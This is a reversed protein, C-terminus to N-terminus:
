RSGGLQASALQAGAAALEQELLQTLAAADLGDLGDEVAQPAMPMLEAFVSSGLHQALALATPHEFVLTASLRSACAGALANRLEISMLSDLGLERLPAKPPPLEGAPRGLIRAVIRRVEDLLLRSREAAPAAALRARLGQGADGAAAGAAVSRITRPAVEAFLPPVAGAALRDLFRGWDIDLVGLAPEASMMAHALAQLAEGPAMPLLGRRAVSAGARAAAGIEAWAGWAISVAPLGEARRAEALADLFANAAAHNAQAASGLLAASSSFLVFHEIPLDRTMRDLLTAGIVKPRLVAEIRELTQQALLGDDLVGAAHFVGALPPRDRKLENLLVALADADAVDCRHATVSAERPLSGPDRLTRGALAISRAGAVALWRAVELGVGGLGGTVLYTADARPRFAAEPAAIREIRAVRRRGARLAIRREAGGAAIIASIERDAEADLMALDLEPHELAASNAMGWLMAQVPDPLEGPEVARAQRTVIWLRRHQPSALAEQVEAVAAAVLAPADEVGAPPAVWIRDAASARRRAVLVFQGSLYATRVDGPRYAVADFGAGDLLETWREPPLLAHDVRLETDAFAWMGETLGFTLDGWLLEGHNEILLMVGDPAALAAAHALANRLDPTAHLVNAAVVLDFGGPAFGQAEPPRTIDLTGSAVGLRQGLRAAFGPSVDTAVYEDGPRLCPVLAATAGGTGCGIEVIRCNRRKSLLEAFAAAAIENVARACPSQAYVAEAAAGGDGFLLELPDARGELADRLSPGCRQLLRAEPLDPLPLAAAEEGSPAIRSLHAHLRALRPVPTIEALRAQGLYARALREVAQAADALGALAASGRAVAAELQPEQWRLRYFWGRWPERPRWRDPAALRARNAALLHAIPTTGDHRAALLQYRMVGARLARGINDNSLLHRRTLPSLAKAAVLHEVEATFGPDDLFHAIEASVDTCDTLRLGREAFLSAWEDASSTFSATEPNAIAEGAAVFDAIVVAGGPELHGAINDFLARKDEILGSVEIGFIVDYRGPFPDRASDRHHLRVRDALGLQAVGRRGIEIQGAAITCGDLSLDPHRQALAILDTAYGCGFDLVRRARSFDVAAFIAGKLAQQARRLMAQEAPEATGAFLARVWSFGPKAAPMLGFTLHGAAEGEPQVFAALEDYFGTVRADGVIATPQQKPAPELTPDPLWYRQRQFPYTPADAVPPRYPRDHGAWDIPAGDRWLQALTSLLNAWDQRAPTEGPRPRALSPLAPLQPLEVRAFGCLAPQAGLEVLHTCGLRALSALGEAFRVPQRAHARWYAADHHAVVQGTLSGVVPLTPERHPIAAAERELTDLAPEMLRSHFAQGLELRQGLIGRAELEPDALLAELAAAPGAVTLATRSNFGSIEVGPHRAAVAAGGAGLLVAMGGGAPLAGMLRGRAAVLRAGDELSFVGALHAAAYEGLSHGLVAVPEIGWSRWLAGLGASLAYLAPQAYETRALAAGDAFVAALGRDLGMAADCRAVIDAFVPADRILGAAMGAYSAGQGTVLFGVRVPRSATPAEALAAKLEARAAAVDAAVVALRQSLRARGAGATHCLAAFDAGPAALAREWREALTELGARDRASLALLHLPRPDARREAAPPAREIVVHANTGSFGFSSVGISALEPLAQLGTPVVLPADGLDIHPNLQHFHLSAPVASHGLMLVAKILGAVGAAAEAHGINSKVSGVWLPRDREGFVAKLAHMEIPDGLATGTGHAELYDVREPAVGGNALAARIVAAQAPGNPATLGASRGDQNVASGRLVALVRDGAARADSLLKLVVVGCGEGHVFGDAAADFPRCRGTPSAAGLKSSSVLGLPSLILHVGGALALSCEGARLAQAALHVAVLSSSCATDIAVAPGTLGLCFAIRGPAVSTHTGSASWGDILAANPSGRGIMGYNNNYLGLYVAAPSGRLADPPIGAHELAEWAVELALRQQPDMQVAERPAIGFFAADFMDISLLFGGEAQTTRGPAAPNASLWRAHDWRDPPVPAVADGACALLEWFASGGDAGGAFRCGLGIIAVPEQPM